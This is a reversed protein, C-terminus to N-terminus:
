ICGTPSWAPAASPSFVPWIPWTLAQAGAGTQGGSVSHEQAFWQAKRPTREDDSLLHQFLPDRLVLQSLTINPVWPHSTQSCLPHCPAPAPHLGVLLPFSLVATVATVALLPSLRLYLCMRTGRGHIRPTNDGALFHLFWNLRTAWCYPIFM